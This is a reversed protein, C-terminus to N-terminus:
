VVKARHFARMQALLDGICPVLAVQALVGLVMCGLFILTEQFRADGFHFLHDGVCSHDVHVLQIGAFGVNM